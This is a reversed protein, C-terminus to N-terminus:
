KNALFADLQEQNAKVADNIGAQELAKVFEDAAADVDSVMGANLMPLKEAMEQGFRAATETTTRIARQAANRMDFGM